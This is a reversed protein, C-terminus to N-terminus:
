NRKSIRQQSFYLRYFFHHFYKCIKNIKHVQTIKLVPTFMYSVIYKQVGTCIVNTYSFVKKQHLTHIM